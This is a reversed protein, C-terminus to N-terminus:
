MPETTPSVVVSATSGAVPLKDGAPPACDSAVLWAIQCVCIPQTAKQTPVVWYWVAECSLSSLWSAPKLRVVWNTQCSRIPQTANQVSVTCYWDADCYLM